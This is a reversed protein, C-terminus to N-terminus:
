ARPASLISEVFAQVRTALQGRSQPIYDTELELFPVGAKELVPRMMYQEFAWLDCMTLRVMVVGDIGYEKVLSLLHAAREDASGFKRPVPPIEEFYHNVIADFPEIEESIDHECANEGNETGDAVILGGESELTEFFKMDDANGGMYLLRVKPTFTEGSEAIERLLERVLPVYDGIPMSEGALMVMLLETGTLAVSKGKQLAYLERQLRRKENHLRIAERLNEPRITVCFRLETQHIYEKLQDRYFRKATEGTKKPVYIFAYAPCNKTLKWNDYVRRIHDCNNSVVAGDLFAWRGSLIENFTHRTYGCTLERFYPDAFETGDSGTGRLLVPIGGAATIVEEPVQGAVGIVKKGEKKARELYENGISTAVSILKELAPLAKQRM